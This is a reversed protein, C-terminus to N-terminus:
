PRHADSPPPPGDQRQPASGSGRLVQPTTANNSANVQRQKRKRPAPADSTDTVGRPRQRMKPNDSASSLGICTRWSCAPRLTRLSEFMKNHVVHFQPSVYGSDRDLVLSVNAAHQPLRSLYIGVESRQNWKHYPEFNQLKCALVFCIFWVSDLAQLQLHGPHM